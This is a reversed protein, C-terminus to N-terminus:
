GRAHKSRITELLGAKMEEVTAPIATGSPPGAAEVARRIDALTHRRGPEVVINGSEDLRWLLSDGADVGLLRRIPQPLTLQQKSTIKSEAITRMPAEEKGLYPTQRRSDLFSRLMTKFSLHIQYHFHAHFSPTM